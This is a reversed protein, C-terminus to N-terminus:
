HCCLAIFVFLSVDVRFRIMVAKTRRDAARTKAGEAEKCSPPTKVTLGETTAPPPPVLALPDVFMLPVMPCPIRPAEVPPENESLAPNQCAAAGEGELEIEPVM